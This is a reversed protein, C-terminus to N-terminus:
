QYWLIDLGSSRWAHFLTGARIKPQQISFFSCNPDSPCTSGISWSNFSRISKYCWPHLRNPDRQLSTLVTSAISAVTHTSARADRRMTFDKEAESPEDHGEIWDEQEYQQRKSKIWIRWVLYTAAAITLVGGIVGGAIAGVNPGSNSSKSSLTITAASSPAAACVTKQCADCTPTLLSCVENPGCVPCAPSENPCGTVCRRFLGNPLSDFYSM